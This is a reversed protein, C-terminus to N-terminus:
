VKIGSRITKLENWFIEPAEKPPFPFNILVGSGGGLASLYKRLQAYEKMEKKNSKRNLPSVAKLEIVLKKGEKEVYLDARGAGIIIEKGKMTTYKISIPMETKVIYDMEQLEMCMAERYIAEQHGAGLNEYVEKAIMEIDDKINGVTDESNGHSIQEDHVRSVYKLKGGCQCSEFDEPSEGKQLEYYGACKECVLYDM